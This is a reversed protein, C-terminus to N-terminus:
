MFKSWISSYACVALATVAQAAGVIRIAVAHRGRPARTTGTHHRHLARPHRQDIAAVTLRRLSGQLADGLAPLSTSM